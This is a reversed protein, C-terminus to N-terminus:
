LWQLIMAQVDSWVKFHTIKVRYMWLLHFTCLRDISNSALELSLFTPLLVFHQLMSLDVYHRQCLDCYLAATSPLIAEPVYYNNEFNRRTVNVSTIYFVFINTEKVVTNGCISQYTRQIHFLPKLEQTKVGVTNLTFIDSCHSYTVSFSLMILCLLLHTVIYPAWV